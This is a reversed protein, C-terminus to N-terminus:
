PHHLLHTEIMKLLAEATLSPPLAFTFAERVGPGVTCQPEQVDEPNDKKLLQGWLVENRFKRHVADEIFTIGKAYTEIEPIPTRNLEWKNEVAYSHLIEDLCATFASMEGKLGGEATRASSTSWWIVEQKQLWELKLKFDIKRPQRMLPPNDNESRDELNIRCADFILFLFTSHDAVRQLEALIEQICVNGSDEGWDYKYEGELSERKLLLYTTTGGNKEYGHGTWYSVVDVTKVKEILPILKNRARVISPLTTDRCSLLIDFGLDRHKKLMVEVDKGCCILKELNKPRTKDDYTQAIGWFVKLPRCTIMVKVEEGQGAKNSPTIVVFTRRFRRNSKDIQFDEPRIKLDGTKTKWRAQPTGSILLRGEKVSIELQEEKGGIWRSEAEQLASLKDGEFKLMAEFQVGIILNLEHWGDERLTVIKKDSVQEQFTYDQAQSKNMNTIMDDLDFKTIKMASNEIRPPKWEEIRPLRLNVTVLLDHCKIKVAHEMSDMSKNPKGAIQNDRVIQFGHDELAGISATSARLKIIDVPKSILRIALAPSIDQGKILEEPINDFSLTVFHIVLKFEDKVGFMNQRMICFEQTRHAAGIMEPLRVELQGSLSDLKIWDSTFSDDSAHDRSIGFTGKRRQPVEIGHFVSSVEITFKSGPVLVLQEEAYGSWMFLMRRKIEGFDTVLTVEVISEEDQKPMAVFKVRLINGNNESVLEMQRLQAADTVADISQQLNKFRAASEDCRLLDSAKIRLTEGVCMFVQDNNNTDQESPVIHCRPTESYIKSVIHTMEIHVVDHDRQMEDGSDEEAEHHSIPGLKLKECRQHQTHHHKQGCNLSLTQGKGTKAAAEEEGARGRGGVTSLTEGKDAGANENQRKRTITEAESWGKAASGGMEVAALLPVPVADRNTVARGFAVAREKQLVDGIEHTQIEEGSGKGRCILTKAAAEEDGARGKGGAASGGKEAGAHEDGEDSSRSSSHESDSIACNKEEEVLKKFTTFTFGTDRWYHYIGEVPWGRDAIVTKNSKAWHRWADRDSIKEKVVLSKFAEWSGESAEKQGRQRESSEDEEDSSEDEEDELRKGSPCIRKEKERGGSEDEEDQDSVEAPISDRSDRNGSLPTARM